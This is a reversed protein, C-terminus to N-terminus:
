TTEPAVIWGGGKQSSRLIGKCIRSICVADDLDAGHQEQKSISMLFDRIEITKLDNFGLGHGPAPIFAGYDPHEANIHVTRFGAGANDEGARYIEIQNSQEGRFVITGQECILEFGIDMKHGHAVRSVEVSGVAGSEFKLTSNSWDENEVARNTTPDSALCRSQHFTAVEGRLDTVPGCLARAIAFVHWGMDGLAGCKGALSADHRWTFPQTADAGYDECHWGKFHLPKGLEGTELVQLAYRILPSRLYTFGVLHSVNGARAANAIEAAEDSSLGVPKECLVHTGHKAAAIAIDKHLYSPVAIVVADCEVVARQWDTTAIRFGFRQAMTTATKEDAEVLMHPTAVFHEDGFVRNVANIALAHSRGIFGAGILGIKIEM